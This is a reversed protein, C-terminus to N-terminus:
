TGDEPLLFQMLDLTNTTPNSADFHHWQNEKVVKLHLQYNKPQQLQRIYTGALQSPYVVCETGHVLIVTFHKSEIEIDM